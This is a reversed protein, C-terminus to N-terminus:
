NKQVFCIFNKKFTIGSNQMMKTLSTDIKYGNTMLFGFLIDIEEICLFKSTNEPNCIAYICKCNCCSNYNSIFPSLKPSTIQKVITGFPGLPKRNVVYINKYSESVTDYFPQTSITYM